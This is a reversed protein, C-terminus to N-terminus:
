KEIVSYCMSVKSKMTAPVFPVDCRCTTHQAVSITTFLRVHMIYDEVTVRTCWGRGGELGVRCYVFIM